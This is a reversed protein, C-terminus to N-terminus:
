FCVYNRPIKKREYRMFKVKFINKEILRLKIEFIKKYLLYKKPFFVCVCYFSNLFHFVVCLIFPIIVQQEASAKDRDNPLYSPSMIHRLQQEEQAIKQRLTQMQQQYVDIQGIVDECTRTKDKILQNM